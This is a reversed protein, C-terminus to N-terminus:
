EIASASYGLSKPMIRWIFEGLGTVYVGHIQALHIQIQEHHQLRNVSLAIESARTLLQIERLGRDAVGELSQAIKQLVGQEHALARM